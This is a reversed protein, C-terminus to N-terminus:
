EGGGVKKRSRAALLEIFEKALERDGDTLKEVNRYLPDSAIGMGLDDVRGLLYDTSANLVHALRRLNAFSPKRTGSEFHSISAAPLGSKAALDGQSLDRELRAARLRQSFLDPASPVDSM